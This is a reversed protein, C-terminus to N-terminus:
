TKAERLMQLLPGLVIKECAANILAHFLYGVLIRLQKFPLTLIIRELRWAQWYRVFHTYKNVM